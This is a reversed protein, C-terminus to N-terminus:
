CFRYDVTRSLPKAEAKKVYGNTGNVFWLTVPVHWLRLYQRHEYLEQYYPTNLECIQIKYILTIGEDIGEVTSLEVM